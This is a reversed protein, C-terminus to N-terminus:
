HPPRRELLGFVYALVEAVARYLQAPIEQGVQVSKYMARALMPNEVIPVGHEVAKLRIRKAVFNKGKAVVLPAAMSETDYRIAVAYHTPNV